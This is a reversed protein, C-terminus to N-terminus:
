LFVITLDRLDQVALSSLPWTWSMFRPLLVCRECCEVKLSLCLSLYVCPCVSMCAYLTCLWRSAFVDAMKSAFSLSCVRSLYSLKLVISSGLNGSKQASSFFGPSKWSKWPGGHSIKWSRKPAWSHKFIFFFVDKVWLMQLITWQLFQLM